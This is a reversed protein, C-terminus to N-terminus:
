CAPRGGMAVPLYVLALAILMMVSLSEPCANKSKFRCRRFTFSRWHRAGGARSPGARIPILSQPVPSAADVFETILVALRRHYIGFRRTLRVSIRGIGFGIRYQRHPLFMVAMRASAFNQECAQWAIDPGAPASCRARPASSSEGHGAGLSSQFSSERSIM